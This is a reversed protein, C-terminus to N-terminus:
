IHRSHRGMGGKVALVGADGLIRCHATVQAHHNGLVDQHALDLFHDDLSASLDQLAVVQEINILAGLDQLAILGHGIGDGEPGLVM